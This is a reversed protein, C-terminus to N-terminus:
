LLFMLDTAVSDDNAALQFFTEILMLCSFASVNELLATAAAKGPVAAPIQGGGNNCGSPCSMVQSANLVAEAKEVAQICEQSVYESRRLSVCSQGAYALVCVLM